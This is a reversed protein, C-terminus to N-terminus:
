EGTGNASLAVARGNATPRPRLRGPGLWELLWAGLFFMKGGRVTFRLRGLRVERRLTTRALGLCHRAQALDYVADRHIVHPPPTTAAPASKRPM